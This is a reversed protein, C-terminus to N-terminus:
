PLLTRSRRRWGYLGLVLWAAGADSGGCACTTEDDDGEVVPPVIITECEGGGYSGAVQWASLLPDCTSAACEAPLTDELCALPTWTHGDTTRSLDFGDQLHDGCAYGVGGVTDGCRVAPVHQSVESWSEGDDESRWTRAGQVSGLLLADELAVLGPTSDTYWGTSFTSTFTVGGDESVLLEPTDAEARTRRWVLLRDGDALLVRPDSDGDAWTHALTWSTGDDSRWLESVLTDVYVVTVW